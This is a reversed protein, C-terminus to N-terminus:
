DLQQYKNLKLICFELDVDSVGSVESAIESAKRAHQIELTDIGVQM